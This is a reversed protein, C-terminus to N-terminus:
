VAVKMEESGSKVVLKKDHSVILNIVQAQTQIIENVSERNDIIIPASVCYHKSLANIIDIGANIKAANNADAFPVGNILPECTEVLGGNIQEDFLKFRVFSFMSNIKQDLLEVKTRIFKDCLFENNELDAIKQALEKERAELEKIRDRLRDNNEAKRLESKISDIEKVVESKRSRLENVNVTSDQPANLIETLEDVQSRLSWYEDPYEADTNEFDTIAKQADNILVTINLLSKEIEASQEILQNLQTEVSIKQQNASKGKATIEDLNKAKDSNFNEHLKAKKQEITEADLKRKCTPCTFDESISFEKAKEIDWDTRYKEVDKALVDKKSTLRTIQNKTESLLNEKETKENQYKRLTSNLKQAQSYRTETLDNEIKSIKSRLSNLENKKEAIAPNEKTADTLQDEIEALESEYNELEHMLDGTEIEVISNNNEDIRAPILKLEDNLKKKTAAIGKKLKDIDSEQDFLYILDERNKEVALESIVDDNSVGGIITLLINRRDKWNMVTSFYLPNTILKFIEENVLSSIEEQFESAKVPVDNISYITEHGTFTSDTEGRKKQWKEKFIKQYTKLHGNIFLEGTVSHELGHLVNGKKDITKIEFQKRDTSDKDFLLWRFADNITTKGTANEGYINTVDDLDIRLDKIGKFNKLYLSKLEIRNIM